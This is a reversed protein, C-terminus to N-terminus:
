SAHSTNLLDTLLGAVAGKLAIATTIQLQTLLASEASDTPGCGRRGACRCLWCSIRQNCPPKSAQPKPVPFRTTLPIPLLSGETFRTTDEMHWVDHRLRPHELKFMRQVLSTIRNTMLHFLLRCNSSTENLKSKRNAGECTPGVYTHREKAVKTHM